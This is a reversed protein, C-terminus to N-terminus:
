ARRAARIWERVQVQRRALNFTDWCEAAGEASAEQDARWLITDELPDEGWDWLPHAVLVWPSFERRGIGIRFAPVMGDAFSTTEGGFRKVMEEALGTATRRWGDLGPFDFNKDLGCQFTPDIIARLYCLALQWDLLGHFHQNGYRLLCRYCATDCDQHEKSYFDELPYASKDTLMSHLFRLVRPVGRDLESLNRCFGAGNVLQDTLQLLPLRLDAGYRRPELVDFEEPDIDLEFSARNVILFTASLAAARVGQWRSVRRPDPEESLSPLKYLSLGSFVNAPALYLSDTTKPAALWVFEGGGRVQFENLEKDRDIAQLPLRVTGSGLPVVQEGTKLAFGRGGDDHEPGRNLRYTRAQEDFALRLSMTPGNQEFEFTEFDLVSGEAQISRHRSGGAGEEKKSKPRLDTRFANPVVCERSNADSLIAGCAECPIEGVGVSSLRVWASCRGCQLLRFREGFPAPQFARVHAETDRKVFEPFGFDPTFGVCLHEYKDKVVKAGPAFEYIALDLDRDITRAEARFDKVHLDLYLNRVRTPMGFMPFLGLEAFTNALGSAVGQILKDDIETLLGDADVELPEDLRGDQVLLGMFNQAEKRTAGLAERLRDHWGFSSDLFLSVPLFEGHIDPPSMLDGPFIGLPFSREEQRLRAFADILWKKRLFRKAINAMRKTLFPTPPVDGTMKRPERFYYIDHSRTRCITLAMSFAQGRRGARGVRQQYNFRQPPMNAQMVVQLPGIDIGVEMTTTVALVDITEKEEFADLLVKYTVKSEGEAGEGATSDGGTDNSLDPVLEEEITPVFIGRFERQRRAPDETQGTLEECHLRFVSDIAGPTAEHSLARLVRRALFNDRQLEIVRGTPTEPLLNFCRTCVGAGRHLHVRSCLECRWYSDQQEALRIRIKCLEVIGGDHGVAKLDALAQTLEIEAAIGWVAKAFSTVRRTPVDGFDVWPKHTEEEKRYPNPWYRYADALVRLLASLVQVRDDSRRPEPLEDKKLTVYALGSEELSFYNKSFIIGTTVKHFSSILNRQAGPLAAGWRKDNLWFVKGDRREFLRDWQFRHRRGDDRQGVPRDVGASDYPHVGRRIMDSILWSAEADQDRGDWTDYLCEVVSSLAVSPERCEGLEANLRRVIAARRGVSEFDEADVAEQVSEKAVKLEAEILGPERRREKLYKYLNIILLERRLDQHHNQEIDLAARAADQRSDSFSVLKAEDHPNAVRQADFLETALLQTTKGFGARFNRVPSLRGMGKRRQSYDTACRPCAYPVHTETSSRARGHHDQGAKRDLLFGRVGIEARVGGPRGDTISRVAGTERDLVAEVWRSLDGKREQPEDRPALNTPWFMAYQEFSLEEFRQSAAVDPLGDLQAEHPLLEALIDGRAAIRGGVTRSRMGGFFLEGCCECYLLELQRLSRRGHGPIDFEKRAEREISLSGVESVREPYEASEGVGANKWAPAYLGELSRFFTHVRFTPAEVNGGLLGALGDGCGRVFLLARVAQLVSDYHLDEPSSSGERLDAFLHWAIQRVVTARTRSEATDWCSTVLYSAVKEVSLRVVTAIDIGDHGVSLNSAVQRWLRETEADSSPNVAFTLEPAYERDGAGDVQRCHEFLEIFPGSHLLAPIVVEHKARREKGRVISELWLQQGEEETEVTRPLGFRGFMDWLYDASKRAEEEPEAPLSASSALVRLKHRNEPRSLGLRDLLLRLLYAVETGASGRQLHLEDLILYFYSDPQELWTRTRAFISADVERTLMASLMSVNTILIDPPTQQMDWRSILEGGDVAPFMFPADDGFASPAQLLDPTGSNVGDWAYHRAYRQGAELSLMEDFLEEQRRKRRDIEGDRIDRLTIGDQGGMDGGVRPDIRRDLEPDDAALSLLDAFGPHDEQGTVPSKGTYRGFFIRNGDFERDMVERAERSDLARRLRVLQDEVLANMPYLILARLAAPRREGTRHARFPTARPNRRSPRSSLPIAEYRPALVGKSDPKSYPKGTGPDHWWRQKLFRPEPAPWSKAEKTIAALLPLLFSETKGSGTGSTVIGPSGAKTGRHLMHLQHSYPKFRGVRTTPVQGGDLAPRSPFLGALVLEIFALREARDFGDLPDHEHGQSDPLDEFGLVAAEYRPLPELLPETCLTGPSRLLRHRELAVSKDGIRFATDLYTIYLERIRLFSGLPDQM